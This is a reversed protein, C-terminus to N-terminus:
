IQSRVTMTENLLQSYQFESGFCFLGLVQACLVESTAHQEGFQMRGQRKNGCQFRSVHDPAVNM